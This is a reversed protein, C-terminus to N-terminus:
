HYKCKYYSFSREVDCSTIPTHKFDTILSPSLNIDEEFDGNLVNNIKTLKAFGKNKGLIDTM